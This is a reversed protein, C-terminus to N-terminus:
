YLLVGSFTAFKNSSQSSISTDHYYTTELWVSQGATLRTIITQSTRIGFNQALLTGLNQNDVVLKVELHHTSHNDEISYTLLYVGSTPVTFIGTNTNYGNGDNILTRDMKILQGAGLHTLTQTLYSSFAVHTVARKQGRALGNGLIRSSQYNFESEGALLIENPITDSRETVKDPTKQNNMLNGKTETQILEIINMMDKEMRIMETKQSMVTQNLVDKEHELNTIDQNQKKVITELGNIREQLAIIQGRQQNVNDQVDKVTTEPHLVTNVKDELVEITNRQDLIIDILVKELKGDIGKETLDKLLEYKGDYNISIPKKLGFM